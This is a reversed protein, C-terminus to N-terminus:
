VLRLRGFHKTKEMESGGCLVGEKGSGSLNMKRIVHEERPVNLFDRTRLEPNPTGVKAARLRVRFWHLVLKRKYCNQDSHMHFIM